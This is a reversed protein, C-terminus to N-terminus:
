GVVTVTVTSGPALMTGPAPSVGLILGHPYSPSKETRYQVKLGARRLVVAYDAALTGQVTRALSRYSPVGSRGPTIEVRALMRDVEAAGTSSEARFWVKLAPIGVAGSCVRAEQWGDLCSTRQRQAQMGDIVLTEDARFGITPTGSLEVSDVGSPRRSMCFRAASPDDIQVTDQQPTGCQSRNTPWDAPVAIAAHGFGVLRTAPPVPAPTPSTLPGTPGRSTLVTSGGIVAAVAVAAAVLGTRRRRRRAAGAYLTDLPPPGVPTRAATRELLDTLKSDTM